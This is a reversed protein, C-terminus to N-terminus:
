EKCKFTFNLRYEFLKTNSTYAKYQHKFRRFYIPKNNIILNYHWYDNIEYGLDLDNNDDKIIEM